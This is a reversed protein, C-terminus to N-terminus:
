KESKERLKLQLNILESDFSKQTQYYEDRKEMDIDEKIKNVEYLKEANLRAEQAKLAAEKEVQFRKKLELVLKAKIEKEVSLKKRENKLEIDLIFLNNKLENIKIVYSNSNNSSAAVPSGLPTSNELSLKCENSEHGNSSSNKSSSEVGSTTSSNEKGHLAVQGGNSSTISALLSQKLM